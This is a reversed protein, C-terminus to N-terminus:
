SGKTKPATCSRPRPDREDTVAPERSGAGCDIRRERSGDTALLLDKGPGGLLVDRGKGALIADAGGGGLLVDNGGFGILADTAPGASLFDNGLEGALVDRGQEGFLRDTGDGGRIVDNGVGGRAIVTFRTPVADGKGRTVRLVDDGDGLLALISRVPRADCTIRNSDINVCTESGPRATASDEVVLRDSQGNFGAEDATRYVVQIENEETPSADIRLEGASTVQVTSARAPVALVLGAALAGCLCAARLL